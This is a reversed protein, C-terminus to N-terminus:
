GMIGMVHEAQELEEPTNVNLLQYHKEVPLEYLYLREKLMECIDTLYYENQANNTKLFPITEWLDSSDVWYVGCNVRNMLKESETADKFEVIKQFRGTDDTIVRGNSGPDELCSVMLCPPPMQLMVDLCDGILPTDGNLILVPGEQVFPLAVSVAHGTGQPPVQPVFTFRVHTNQEITDKFHQEYAIEHKGCVLVIRNAGKSILVNCIRKIMSVGGLTHMPKPLSSRMRKGEGGAMVIAQFSQSAM